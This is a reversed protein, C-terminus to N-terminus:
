CECPAPMYRVHRPDFHSTRPKYYLFFRFLNMFAKRWPTHKVGNRDRMKLTQGCMVLEIHWMSVNFM